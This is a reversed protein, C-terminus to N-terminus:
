QRTNRYRVACRRSGALESGTPPQECVSLWRRRGVTRAWRLTSTDDKGRPMKDPLFSPMAALQPGFDRFLLHMRRLWHYHPRTQGFAGLPAQFDYNKVPMDNYNTM